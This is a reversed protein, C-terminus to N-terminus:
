IEYNGAKLNPFSFLGDAETFVKAESQQAINTLTVEAGPIVAGSPDTVRGNLTASYSQGFALAPILLLLVVPFFLQSPQRSM